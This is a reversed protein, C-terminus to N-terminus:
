PHEGKENCCMFSILSLNFQANGGIGIICVPNHGLPNIGGVNGSFLYLSQQWREPAGDKLLGRHKAGQLVVPYAEIFEGASADRHFSFFSFGLDKTQFKGLPL